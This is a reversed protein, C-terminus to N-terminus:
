SLMRLTLISGGGGEMITDKVSEGSFRTQPRSDQRRGYVLQVLESFFFPFHDLVGSIRSIVAHTPETWCTRQIIPVLTGRM